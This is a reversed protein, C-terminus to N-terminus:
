NKAVNDIFFPLSTLNEEKDVDDAVVLAKELIM